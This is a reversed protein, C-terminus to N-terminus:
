ILISFKRDLLVGDYENAINLTKRPNIQIKIIQSWSGFEVMCKDSMPQSGFSDFNKRRCLFEILKNSKKLEGSCTLNISYMARDAPMNNIKPYKGFSLIIMSYKTIKDIRLLFTKIVSPEYPIM